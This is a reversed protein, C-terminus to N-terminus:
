GANGAKLEWTTRTDLVLASTVSAFEESRSCDALYSRSQTKLRKPSPGDDISSHRNRQIERSPSPSITTTRRASVSQRNGEANMHEPSYQMENTEQSRARKNLRRRSDRRDLDDETSNLSSLELEISPLQQEIGRLLCGKECRYRRIKQRFATIANNRARITEHREKAARLTCHDALLRKRLTKGLAKSKAMAKETSSVASTALQAAKEAREEENAHRFTTEIICIVEYTENPELVNSDVLQEWAEDHQRQFRKVFSAARDYSYYEYGLYEIWTTLRDQRDLDRDLQFPRTFGYKTLRAKM